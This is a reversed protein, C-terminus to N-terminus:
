DDMIESVADIIAGRFGEDELECVGKITSGNPSCVADKLEGPHKDLVYAMKGTGELMKSALRYSTKRDLGFRCGADGLAEIFMAVFAPACGAIVTAISMQEKDVVEISGIKELLKTVIKYEKNDLTHEKECLLVGKNVSMATNPIVSIHHCSDIMENLDDCFLGAVFSILIKNTLNVEKLVDKAQNPKVCLFIVDSNNALEENTKCATVDYKKADEKCTSYDLSSVYIKEINKIKKNNIGQIASKAINGFGLFGIKM